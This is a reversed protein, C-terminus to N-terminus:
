KYLYCKLIGLFLEMTLLFVLASTSRRDVICGVWDSDCFGIPASGKRMQRRFYKWSKANGSYVLFCAHHLCVPNNHPKWISHSNILLLAFIVGQVSCYACWAEPPRGTFVTVSQLTMLIVFEFHKVTGIAPADCGERSFRELDIKMYNTKLSKLIKTLAVM